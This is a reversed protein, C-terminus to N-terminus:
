FYAPSITIMFTSLLWFLSSYKKLDSFKLDAINIQRDEEEQLSITSYFNSDNDKDPNIPNEDESQLSQNTIKQSEDGYFKYNLSEKLWKEM